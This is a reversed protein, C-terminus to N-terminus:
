QAAIMANVQSLLLDAVLPKCVFGDAGAQKAITALEEPPKASMM